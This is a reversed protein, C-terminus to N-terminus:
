SIQEPKKQLSFETIGIRATASYGNAMIKDSIKSGIYGAAILYTLPSELIMKGFEWAKWGFANLKMTFTNAAISKNEM